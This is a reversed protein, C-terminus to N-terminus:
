DPKRGIDPPPVGFISTIRERLEDVSVVGRALLDAAADVDAATVVPYSGDRNAGITIATGGLYNVVGNGTSAIGSLSGGVSISRPPTVAGTPVYPPAPIRPKWDGAWEACSNHAKWGLFRGDLLGTSDGTGCVPCTKDLKRRNGKPRPYPRDRDHPERLEPQPSIKPGAPGSAVPAVGPRRKAPRVIWWYTNFFLAFLCVAFALYDLM